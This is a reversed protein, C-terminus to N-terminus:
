IVQQPVELVHIVTLEDADSAFTFDTEREAIAKTGTSSDFLVSKGVTQNKFKADAGSVVIRYEIQATTANGTVTLGDAVGFRKLVIGTSTQLELYTWNSLIFSRISEYGYNNIKALEIVM